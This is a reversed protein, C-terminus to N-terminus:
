IHILSLTLALCQTESNGACQHFQISFVLFSQFSLTEESAIRTSNLTLFWTLRLCATVELETLTLPPGVGLGEGFSLPSRISSSLERSFM